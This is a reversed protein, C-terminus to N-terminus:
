NQITPCTIDFTTPTTEDKVVEVTRANALAVECNAALESLELDHSGVSLNTLDRTENIGIAGLDAGDLNVIYGDPDPDDGTTVTTVAVTGTAPDNPGLNESDTCGLACFAFVLFAPTAVVSTRNM